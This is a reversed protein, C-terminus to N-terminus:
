SCHTFRFVNNLRSRTSQNKAQKNTQKNTFGRRESEESISDTVPKDADEPQQSIHHAEFHQKM